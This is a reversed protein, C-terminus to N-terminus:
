RLVEYAGERVLRRGLVVRSPEDLGPLDRVLLEDHAAVWEITARIRAPVNLVRDGLAIEILDGRQRRTFPRGSRRRLRTGLDVSTMRDVLGGRLRPLRSTLFWGAQDDALTEADLGVLSDALQKLRTALGDALRGPHDLYGAPLHEDYSGALVGQIARELLSRWTVQNIGITVHLSVEDEARAAHPTGTPLYMALGPRMRVERLPAEPHRHDGIQWRKTGHTQFCFVDHTDSHVDFGQSGPPTLYANAQCPHGLQLELEAVFEALPAHYRHLGQLVITAGGDFLDIVKAPDVLGTVQEGSLTAHRVFRSPPLVNGDQAIRFAPTRIAESTILRDVDDFTLYAALEPGTEHILSRSAWVETIFAQADGSLTTLPDM